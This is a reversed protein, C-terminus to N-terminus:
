AIAHRHQSFVPAASSDNRNGTHCAVDDHCIQLFINALATQDIVPHDRIVRTFINLLDFDFGRGLIRQNLIEGAAVLLLHKNRPPQEGM